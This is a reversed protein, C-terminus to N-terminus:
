CRHLWEACTHKSEETQTARARESATLPASQFEASLSTTLRRLWANLLDEFDINIGTLDNLGSLQPAAASTNLLVSGHQLIASHRRRQASGCIKVDNVLVDGVSRRQFCLLPESSEPARTSKYPKSTCLRATVGFTALADILTQHMADYIASTQCGLAHPKATALSYTLEHDHVIAGGGSSRRVLPCDGSESHQNRDAARQFYGLSLTPCDWRYFRLTAVGTEAASELLTEDVAMNWPGSAPPDVLLRVTTTSTITM